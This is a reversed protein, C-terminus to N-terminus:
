RRNPTRRTRAAPSRGSPAILRELASLVREPGTRRAGSVHAHAGGLGILAHVTGMVVVLLADPQIDNRISGERTGQRLADLLYQRSRAVLDRLKEIAAPPLTLYAQDSRLLWALGPDGAFLRVRNRALGFLRERPPLSPDPFSAEIQEVAHRVAEDLIEERSEFHRFLAGSTVGVADALTATTLATVGREGIIRLAAAAIEERRELTPKRIGAPM